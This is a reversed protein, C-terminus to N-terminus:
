GDANGCADVCFERPVLLFLMRWNAGDELQQSVMRWGGTMSPLSPPYGAGDELRLSAVRWVRWVHVRRDEMFRWVDTLSDRHAEGQSTNM